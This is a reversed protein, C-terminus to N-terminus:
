KGFSMQYGPYSKWLDQHFLRNELTQWSPFDPFDMTVSTSKKSSATAQRGGAWLLESSNTDILLLVIEAQITASLIGGDDIKNKSVFTIFPLLIADAYHVTKSFLHLWEQWKPRKSITNVYFSPASPCQNCDEKQHQWLTQLQNLLDLHQSRSITKKVAQPSLGRMFPQGTFGQIIYKDYSTCLQSIEESTTNSLPLKQYRAEQPWSQCGIVATRAPILSLHGKQLGYPVDLSPSVCSSILTGLFTLLWFQRNSLKKEKAFFPTGTPIYCFLALSAVM